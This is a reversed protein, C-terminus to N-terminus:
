ESPVFRKALRVVDLHHLCGDHDADLEDFVERVLKRNDRLADRTRELADNVEVSRGIKAATGALALHVCNWKSLRVGALRVRVHYVNCCISLSLKPVWDTIVIYKYIYESAAFAEKITDLMEQFTIQGDGDMDLMTRLEEVERDLHQSATTLYPM